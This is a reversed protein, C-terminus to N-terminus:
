TPGRPTHSHLLYMIGVLSAVCQTLLLQICLGRLWEKATCAFFLGHFGNSLLVREAWFLVSDLLASAPM